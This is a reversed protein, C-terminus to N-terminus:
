NGFGVCASASIKLIILQRSEDSSSVSFVRLIGPHNLYTMMELHLPSALFALRHSIQKLLCRCKSGQPRAPV